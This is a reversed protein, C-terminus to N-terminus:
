GRSLVPDGDHHLRGARVLAEVEKMPASFNKVTAGYEVM